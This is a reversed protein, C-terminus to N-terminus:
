PIIIYIFIVSLVIIEVQKDFFRFADKNKFMCIREKVNTTFKLLFLCQYM